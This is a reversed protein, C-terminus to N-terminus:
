VGLFGMPIPGYKRKNMVIWRDIDKAYQEIRAAFLGKGGGLTTGISESLGDLSVSMSSMGLLMGDGINAMAQIAAFKGIVNRLDDPIFDSSSFGTTYDFEYGQPYKSGLIRWPMMGVAYPGYAYGGKPFMQLQGLEKQVRLWNNSLLDIVETHVQSYLKGREISIIPYHRLQLFGFNQWEEPIFDYMDEEDTYDVGARWYKSRILNSAPATKYVRKRIDIGLTKEFEAVALDVMYDFQEDAPASAGVDNAIVDIGWFYYYRMDDATIAKGWENPPAAYNRFSYGIKDVETGGQRPTSMESEVDTDPNYYSTKYFHLTTGSADTYSYVTSEPIIPIRTSSDTIESYAGGATTARYVKIVSYTALVLELEDVVISLRNM